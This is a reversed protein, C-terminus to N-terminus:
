VGLTFNVSLLGMPLTLAEVRRAVELVPFDECYSRFLSKPYLSSRSKRRPLPQPAAALLATAGSEADERTRARVYALHASTRTHTGRSETISLM